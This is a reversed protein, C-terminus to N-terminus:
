NGDFRADAKSGLCPWAFAIFVKCACDETHFQWPGPALTDGGYGVPDAARSAPADRCLSGDATKEVPKTVEGFSHFDAASAGRHEVREITPDKRLTATVVFQAAHAAGECSHHQAAADGMEKMDAVRAGVAQAAIAENAERGVMYALIAATSGIDKIACQAHFGLKPEIVRPM